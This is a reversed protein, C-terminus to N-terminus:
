FLFRHGHQTYGLAWIFRRYAEQESM